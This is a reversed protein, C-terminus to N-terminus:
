RNRSGSTSSNRRRAGPGDVGDEDEEDDTLHLDLDDHSPNYGDSFLENYEEKEAAISLFLPYFCIYM